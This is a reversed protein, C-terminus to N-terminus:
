ALGGSGTGSDGVLPRIRDIRFYVLYEKSANEKCLRPTRRRLSDILAPDTEERLITLYFRKGVYSPAEEVFLYAAHPNSQLNQHTLHERMIFAVTDEDTVHPRAYIAADVRGASDATALVGLGEANEFYDYLNM